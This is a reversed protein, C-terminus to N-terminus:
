ALQISFSIREQYSFAIEEKFFADYDQKVAAKIAYHEPNFTQIMVTGQKEGRGSRGALEKVTDDFSGNIKNDSEFGDTCSALSLLGGERLAGPPGSGSESGVGTSGLPGIKM